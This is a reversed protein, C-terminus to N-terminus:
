MRLPFQHLSIWHHRQQATLITDWIIQLAMTFPKIKGMFFDAFENALQEDDTHEPLPNDMKTGTLHCVLSYLKKSEWNCDAVKECITQTKVDKLMQKYKQREIKLVTWNSTLGYQRWIKERRRVRRKKKSKMHSGHIPPDLQQANKKQPLMSTWFQRYIPILGSWWRMWGTQEDLQLDETFSPIDISKLKRITVHKSFMHEKKVSLLFEVAAHDSLYSRPKCSLIRHTSLCETFVLDLTNNSRHTPFMVHQDLGLALMTDTFVEGEQDKPDNVHLNVDGTIVLNRHEALVETLFESFEDLFQNNTVQYTESYPPHYIACVTLDVGPYRVQWIAKEFTDLQDLNLRKIILYDKYILAVGGGQRNKRNHCTIKYGNKNLGCGQLWIDDADKLWTETIIVVDIHENLLYDVM